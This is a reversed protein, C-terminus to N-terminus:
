LSHDLSKLEISSKTFNGMGKAVIKHKENKLVSEAFVLRPSAQIIKGEAYIEGKSIARILQVSFSVTVIFNDLVISQAAFFAADDLMKFYVSGHLANAAHFMKDKIQMSINAYSKKITIAPKYYENIPAALYMQELKRYHESYSM